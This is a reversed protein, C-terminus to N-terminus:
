ACTINLPEEIWGAFEDDAGFDGFDFDPLESPEDENFGCIQMNLIDGFDDDEEFSLGFNDVMFYDLDVPPSPLPVNMMGLDPMQFVLDNAEEKIEVKPPFSLDPIPLAAFGSEFDHAAEEKISINGNGNGKETSTYVELVSPPSTQSFVSESDESTFSVSSSSISPTPSTSFSKRSAVMAAESSSTPSPLSKVMAELEMRKAEYAQSAEEPTNFTGLWKRGQLPHRIEAAWKGSNRLRVGRYKSSSRKRMLSKGQKGGNNSEQFSGDAETTKPKKEPLLPLHLEHVMRKVRKPKKIWEAEDESSSSDTAEPDDCIIRLKRSMGYEFGITPYPKRNVNKYANIECFVSVSSCFRSTQLIHFLTRSILHSGRKYLHFPSFITTYSFWWLVSSWFLDKQAEFADFDNAEGYELEGNPHQSKQLSCLCLSVM